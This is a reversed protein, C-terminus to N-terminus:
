VNNAAGVGGGFWGGGGSPAAAAPAAAPAPAAAVPAAHAAPAAAAPAPPAVVKVEPAPKAAAPAAPAAAAAAAPKAGEAAPKRKFWSSIGSAPAPEEKKKFWRLVKAKGTSSLVIFLAFLVGPFTFSTPSLANFLLNLFFFQNISNAIMGRRGWVKM